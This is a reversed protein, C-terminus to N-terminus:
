SRSWGISELSGKETVNHRKRALPSDGMGREISKVLRTQKVAQVRKLGIFDIGDGIVYGM